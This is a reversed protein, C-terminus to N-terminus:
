SSLNPATSVLEYNPALPLLVSCNEIAVISMSADGATSTLKRQPVFATLAHGNQIAVASKSQKIPKPINVLDRKGHQLFSFVRMPVVASM